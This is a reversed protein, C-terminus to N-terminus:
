RPPIRDCEAAMISGSHSACAGSEASSDYARDAHYEATSVIEVFLSRDSATPSEAAVITTYPDRPADIWGVVHLGGREDVHSFVKALKTRCPPGTAGFSSPSWHGFVVAVTQRDRKWAKGGHVFGRAPDEVFGPPLRLLLQGGPSGVTNWGSTDEARPLDCAAVAAEPGSEAFAAPACLQGAVLGALLARRSRV